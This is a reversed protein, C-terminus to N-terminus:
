AQVPPPRLFRHFHLRSHHSPPPALFASHVYPERRIYPEVLCLVVMCFVAGAGADFTQREMKQENPWLKCTTAPTLRGSTGGGYVATKAHLAFFFVLVCFAVRTACWLMGNQKLQLNV